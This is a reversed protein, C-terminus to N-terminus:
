DFGLIELTNHSMNKIMFDDDTIFIMCNDVNIITSDDYLRM